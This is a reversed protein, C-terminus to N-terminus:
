IEKGNADVIKVTKFYRQFEAKEYNVKEEILGVFQHMHKVDREGGNKAYRFDYKRNIKLNFYELNKLKEFMKTDIEEIKNYFFSIERTNPAYEFLDSELTTINNGNLM